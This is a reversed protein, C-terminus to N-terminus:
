RWYDDDVNEYTFDNRPDVGMLYAMVASYTGLVCFFVVFLELVLNRRMLFLRAISRRNNVPRPEHMEPESENAEPRDLVNDGASHHLAEVGELDDGQVFRNRAASVLHHYLKHLNELSRSKKLQRHGGNKPQSSKRHSKSLQSKRRSRRSVMQIWRAPSITGKAGKRGTAEELAGAEDEADETSSDDSISSPDEDDIGFSRQDETKGPIPPQNFTSTSPFDNSDASSSTTANDGDPVSLADVFNWRNPQPRTTPSFRVPISQFTSNRKEPTVFCRNELGPALKLSTESKRSDEKCISSSFMSYPRSEDLKANAGGKGRKFGFSQGFSTSGYEPRNEKPESTAITGLRDRSNTGHNSLGTNSTKSDYFSIRTSISGADQETWNEQSEAVKPKNQNIPEAVPETWSKQREAVEPKIQGVSGTARETLNEQREAVEPKNRGVSGTPQETLNEQRGAVEAKNQGISGAYRETLNEWKFREIVEPKNQSISGAYRETINEPRFREGVEPKNQGVSGTARETLNEQRQVVEPKNKRISGADRETLNEWKFREGVEPKNQGVSGTARETLNEQRQVVGPKNKRISGADRETLNEWKFREIVEPKNQSISGADRETMNELKFRETVEPKNQGVSGTARETLNECNFREAAEPKNQSLLRRASDRELYKTGYERPAAQAEDKLCSEWLKKAELLACRENPAQHVPHPKKTIGTGYRDKRKLKPSSKKLRAKRFSEKLKEEYDRINPSSDMYPYPEDISLDLTGSGVSVSAEVDAKAEVSAESTVQGVSVPGDEPTVKGEPSTPVERSEKVNEIVKETETKTPFIIEKLKMELEDLCKIEVQPSEAAQNESPGSLARDRDKSSGNSGSQDKSADSTRPSDKLIGGTRPSDKLTADKNALGISIENTKLPKNSSEDTKSPNDPPNNITANTGKLEKGVTGHTGPLNGSTGDATSLSEDTGDVWPKDLISEKAKFVPHASSANGQKAKPKPPVPPTPLQWRANRLPSANRKPKPAVPPPSPSRADRPRALRPAKTTQSTNPSDTPDQKDWFSVAAKFDLQEKTVETEM